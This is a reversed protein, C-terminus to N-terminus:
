SCVSPIAVPHDRALARRASYGYSGIESKEAESDIM